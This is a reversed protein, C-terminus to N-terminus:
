ADESVTTTVTNHSEATPVGVAASDPLDASTVHAPMDQAGILLFACSYTLNLEGTAASSTGATAVSLAGAVLVCAAARAFLGTKM